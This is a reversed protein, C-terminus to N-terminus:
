YSHPLAGLDKLVHNMIDCIMRICTQVYLAAEETSCYLDQRHSYVRLRYQMERGKSIIENLLDVVENVVVGPFVLPPNEDSWPTHDDLASICAHMQERVVEGLAMVRLCRTQQIVHSTLLRCEQSTKVHSTKVYRQEVATSTPLTSLSAQALWLVFCGLQDEFSYSMCDIVLAFAYDILSYM